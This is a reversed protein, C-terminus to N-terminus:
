SIHARLDCNLKGNNCRCHERLFSVFSKSANKLVFICFLQILGHEALVFLHELKLSLASMMRIATSTTHVTLNGAYLFFSFFSIIKPKKHEAWAIDCFAPFNHITPWLSNFDFAQCLNTESAYM